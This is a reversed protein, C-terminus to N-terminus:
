RCLHFTDQSRDCGASRVEMPQLSDGIAAFRGELSQGLLSGATLLALGLLSSVLGFEVATAGSRCKMFSAILDM